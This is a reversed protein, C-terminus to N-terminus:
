TRSEALTGPASLAPPDFRTSARGYITYALGLPNRQELFRRRLDVMAAGLEEGLLVRKLLQEAFRAGFGTRMACATGVVARAGRDLFFHVFSMSRTPLVQGSECANLVVIPHELLAVEGGYLEALKLRGAKLELWPKEGDPAGADIGHVFFYMVHATCERLYEYATRAQTILEEQFGGPIAQLLDRIKDRHGVGQQLTGQFFGFALPPGAAITEGLGALEPSKIILQDIHYRLGWFGTRDSPSLESLDFPQEANYVWHGDRDYLLNWPIVFDEAGEDLAVQIRAGAPLESRLLPGLAAMGSRISRRFLLTWLEASEARLPGMDREFYGAPGDDTSEFMAYDPSTAFQELTTRLRALCAYLEAAEIRVRTRFILDTTAPDPTESAASPRKHRFILAYDHERKQVEIHLLREQLSTFDNFDGSIPRALAMSSGAGSPAVHHKAQLSLDIAALLNLKFYIRIALRLADDASTTARNARISFSAPALSPGAAPLRLTAVGDGITFDGEPECELTVILEETKASTFLLPVQNQVMGLGPVAAISVDLRYTNGVILGETSKPLERNKGDFLRVDPFRPTPAAATDRPPPPPPPPTDRPEDRDFSSGLYATRRVDEGDFTEAEIPYAEFFSGGDGALEEEYGDVCVSAALNRIKSPAASPPEGPQPAEFHASFGRISRSVLYPYIAFRVVLALIALVLVTLGVIKFM